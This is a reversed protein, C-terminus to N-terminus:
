KPARKHLPYGAPLQESESQHLDGVLPFVADVIPGVSASGSAGPVFLIGSPVGVEPLGSGVEPLLVSPAKGREFQGDLSRSM